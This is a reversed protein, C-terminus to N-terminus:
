LAASKAKAAQWEFVGASVTASTKAPDVAAPLDIEGLMQSAAAPPAGQPSQGWIILRRPSVGIQFDAATFGAVDAHVTLVGGADNVEVNAPKILESEATFWDRMDNGHDGGRSQYIHYARMAISKQISEELAGLAEGFVIKPKISAGAGKTAGKEPQGM